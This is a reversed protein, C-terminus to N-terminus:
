IARLSAVCEIHTTQPFLDVPQVSEVRYATALAALDTGLTKPNCSVYVLRPVRLAVLQAIARPHVGARPPDVIVVDPRGHRELAGPLATALDGVEFVANEIRNRAANRKANEIAGASLEVGVVRKVSRAVFLSITGVGCFLDLLFDGPRLEAHLAAVEYLRQAQKTNTQFFSQPGIEFVLDGLSDHIVGDGFVVHTAEGYAVQALGSNVTNVFTIVHPFEARLMAAFPELLTPSHHSTVLNVLAGSRDAPERIGLHRLDGQHTKANWATFGHAKAVDRVRNMLRASDQSQLHCESLDLIRDYRGPVFLGLGFSRDIPEARAMEDATLWRTAGFSFEMKNRYEFPKECPLTPLVDDRKLADCVSARKWELQAEYALHQWDCGGCVGFHGCRPTVRDPSAALIEATTAEFGGKIRSVIRVRAREGPLAGDIEIRKAGERAIARAGAREVTVEVEDGPKM